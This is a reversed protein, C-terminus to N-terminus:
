PAMVKLQPAAFCDVVLLLVFWGVFTLSASASASASVGLAIFCKEAVVAMKASNQALSYSAPMKRGKPCSLLLPLQSNLASAPHTDRSIEIAVLLCEGLTFATLTNKTLADPGFMQM